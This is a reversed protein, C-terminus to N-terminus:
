HKNLNKRELDLSWAVSAMNSDLWSEVKTSHGGSAPQYTNSGELNISDSIQTQWEGDIKCAVSQERSSTRSVMYERCFHGSSDNFSMVLEVDTTTDLNVTQGSIESNLVDALTQKNENVMTLLLPLAFAVILLSAAVSLWSTRRWSKLEVVNANSPPTQQSSEKLLNMISDPVPTDDIASFQQKLHNDNESFDAFKAALANDQLLRKEFSARELDTLEGDLFASIIEQDSKKM